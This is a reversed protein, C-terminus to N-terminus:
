VQTRAVWGARRQVVAASVVSVVAHVHKWIRSGDHTPRIKDDKMGSEVLISHNYAPLIKQSVETNVHEVDLRSSREKRLAPEVVVGVSLPVHIFVAPAM